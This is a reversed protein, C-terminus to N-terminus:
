PAVEITTNDLITITKNIKSPLTTSQLQGQTNREKAKRISFVTVTYSQLYMISESVFQLGCLFTMEPTNRHSVSRIQLDIGPKHSSPYSPFSRRSSVRSFSAAESDRRSRRNLLENVRTPNVLFHCRSKEQKFLVQGFVKGLEVMM